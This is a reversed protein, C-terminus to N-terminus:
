TTTFSLLGTRVTDYVQTESVFENRSKQKTQKHNLDLIKSM